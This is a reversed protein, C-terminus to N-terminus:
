GNSAEKALAGVNLIGCLEDALMRYRKAGTSRPAYRIITKGQAEAKQFETNIPITVDFTLDKGFKKRIHDVSSKSISTRLDVKNILLRLFRLDPNVSKNLNEILEIAATLGDLAFRSGTEVPVIVFDTTMLAQMVFLGLNPPCDILTFDFNDTCYQRIANRLLLYSSRVDQYLDMELAATRPINPLCSLNEYTTPFICNEIRESRSYIDYLTNNEPTGGLLIKTTNSQPDQDVVLVRHGKNALCHSLNLTATSKGVGGKNNVVCIIHSVLEEKVM